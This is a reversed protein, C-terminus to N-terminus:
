AMHEFSRFTLGALMDAVAEDRTHRYRTWADAGAGLAAWQAGSGAGFRSVMGVKHWRARPTDQTTVTYDAGNSVTGAVQYRVRKGAIRAM